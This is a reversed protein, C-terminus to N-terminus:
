KTLLGIDMLYERAEGVVYLSGAIVIIEHAPTSDLAQQVADKVTPVMTAKKGTEQVFRLLTEAPLARNIAPQTVIVKQCPPLFFGLMRRYPKDDLIGVVLTIAKDSLYKELHRGLAQASALNHAGDLIVMPEQAAVELRGPWHTTALGKRIHTEEIATGRQTLVETAALSLAANEIQFDGALVTKLGQWTHDIGHYTFGGSRDRHTHFADKYQFVPANMRQAIRSIEAFASKQRVGTVLPTDQKIIGAKEYAIRAVTHGLYDRHELSINTILSVEPKVVNTADLRGGMGTEVIAWNVGAEAFAYLGMATAFEFFTPERDPHPIAKVAEYAKVVADNSIPQDDIVIRENFRVLHPSTYLGVRFGALHLINALTASVSGKGNTGAVHIVRFRKEPSGLDELIRSIVDLGLKIGFRHLRFMDDLCAKYPDKHTM